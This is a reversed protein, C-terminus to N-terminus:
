SAVIPDCWFEKYSAHWKSRAFTTKCLMLALAYRMPFCWSPPGLKSTNDLCMVGEGNWIAQLMFLAVIPVGIYLSFVGNSLSLFLTRCLHSAVIYITTTSSAEWQRSFCAILAPFILLSELFSWLPSFHAVIPFLYQMCLSIPWGM